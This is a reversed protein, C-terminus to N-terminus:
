AFQTKFMNKDLEIRNLIDENEFLSLCEQPNTMNNNDTKFTNRSTLALFVQEGM